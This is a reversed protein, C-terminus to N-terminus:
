RVQKEDDEPHELLDEITRYRRGSVEKGKELVCM